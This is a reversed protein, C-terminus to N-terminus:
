KDILDRDFDSIYNFGSDVIDFLVLIVSPGCMLFLFIHKAFIMHLPM